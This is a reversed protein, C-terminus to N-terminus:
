KKISKTKGTWESIDLRIVEVRDFSNNIYIKGVELNEPCLKNIMMELAKYREASPLSRSAIGKLILSSYDTTFKSAHLKVKGIICFSVKSNEDIIDLKKGEPACHLYISSDGDWVFNVPVGYPTGDASSLSLVGFEAKQLLELAAQEDMVRDQRRITENVYNM